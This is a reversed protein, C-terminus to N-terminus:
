PTPINSSNPVKKRYSIHTIPNQINQNLNNLSLFYIIFYKKRQNETAEKVKILKGNVIRMQTEATMDYIKM